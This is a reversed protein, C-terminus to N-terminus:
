GRRRFRRLLVSLLYLPVVVSAGLAIYEFGHGALWDWAGAVRDLVWGYLSGPSIKLTYLLVGIVLSWITLKIILGMDIRITASTIGSLM